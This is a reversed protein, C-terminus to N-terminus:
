DKQVIILVVQVISLLLQNKKLCPNKKMILQYDYSYGPLRVHMQNNQTPLSNREPWGVNQVFTGSFNMGDLYIDMITVLFLAHGQSTLNVFGFALVVQVRVQGVSIQQQSKMGMIEKVVNSFM